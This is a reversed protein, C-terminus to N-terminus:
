DARRAAKHVVVPFRNQVREVRRPYVGSVGMGLGIIRGCQVLLFHRLGFFCRRKRSELVVGINPADICSDLRSKRTKVVDQTAPELLFNQPSRLAKLPERTQRDLHDSESPGTPGTARRMRM